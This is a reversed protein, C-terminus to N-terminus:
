DFWYGLVPVPQGLVYVFCFISVASLVVALVLTERVRNEHGALAGTCVVAMLSVFMGAPRVLLAFMLPSGMVFLLQRWAFPEISREEAVVVSKGVIVAALLMLICSLYFPMYGPGMQRATGIRYELTAIAVAAGATFLLAGALFDRRDKIRVM